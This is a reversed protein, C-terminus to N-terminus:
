NNIKRKKQRYDTIKKAIVEGIGSIASFPILIKGESIQFNKIESKNFDVGLKFDLNKQKM